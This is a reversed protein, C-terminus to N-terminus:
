ASPKSSSAAVYNIGTKGLAAMPPCFPKGNNTTSMGNACNLFDVAHMGDVSILLVRQVSNNQAAATGLTCAVALSLLIVTQKMTVEPKNKSRAIMKRVPM